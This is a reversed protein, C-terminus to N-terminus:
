LSKFMHGEEWRGKTPIYLRPAEVLEDLDGTQYVYTQDEANSFGAHRGDRDLTVFSMFSHYRGGLDNLDQMAQRGAEELSLGMKLYFVLSHATCARIAMEGLGTCAAAGYRDDAYLGAGVVPSDGLRGPYKWAWGSTSVGAAIHGQADQAIFNVTGKVREPDTVVGLWKTLDPSPRGEAQELLQSFVEAPMEQRLREEWARRAEETLLECPEFGIEAAFRVAGSGVLFVHPLMEMVKRAVSVPHSYGRLAGVAGAALECGDMIAADLEVQGIMNPYGGVGVSHDELNVEVLRIGAEVADVASGGARLVRMAEAVGVVGNQSTVVIM